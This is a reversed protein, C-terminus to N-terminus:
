TRLGLILSTDDDTAERVKASELYVRLRKSFKRDRGASECTMLPAVFREFLDAPAIRQSYDLVLYELGDSFVAFRDFIGGVHVLNITAQPDDVIFRTTSAYEGHFPWSPVVWEGTKRFRLVVAGDGVHAVVASEPGIVVSVLTAAYDRPKRGFRASAANIRERIEDVWDAITDDNIAALANCGRIHRTILRQFSRCVIAAGSAGESASGAGDSIVASM